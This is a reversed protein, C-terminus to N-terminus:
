AASGWDRQPQLPLGITIRFGSAGRDIALSAEGGYVAALRERVSALGLGDAGGSQDGPGDDAVRLVLHADEVAGHVM